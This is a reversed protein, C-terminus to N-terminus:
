KIEEKNTVNIEKDRYEKYPQAMIIVNRKISSQGLMNNVTLTMGDSEEYAVTFGDAILKEINEEEKSVLLILYKRVKMYPYSKYLSKMNNKLSFYGKPVKIIYKNNKLLFIQKLITVSLLDLSIETYDYDIKKSEHIRKVMVENFKVLEPLDNNFKVSYMNTDYPIFTNYCENELAEFFQKEKKENQKIRKVFERIITKKRSFTIFPNSFNIKSLTQEIIEVYAPNENNWPTVINDIYVSIYIITTFLFVERKLLNVREEGVKEKFFSTVILNLNNFNFQNDELNSITNIFYKEILEKSFLNFQKKSTWLNNTKIYILDAIYRSYDYLNDKRKKFYVNILGDNM